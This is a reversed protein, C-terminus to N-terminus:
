DLKGQLEWLESLARAIGGIDNQAFGKDEGLIVGGHDIGLEGWTRLLPPITKLDSSLLTMQQRSVERLIEEGSAGLFHGDRGM